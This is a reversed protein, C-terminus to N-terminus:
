GSTWAEAVSRRPRPNVPANPTFAMCDEDHTIRVLEFYEGPNEAKMREYEQVALREIETESVVELWGKRTTRVFQRIEFKTM